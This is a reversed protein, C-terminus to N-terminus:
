LQYFTRGINGGSTKSYRSPLLKVFLLALNEEKIVSISIIILQQNQYSIM